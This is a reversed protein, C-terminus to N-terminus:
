EYDEQVFSALCDAQYILLSLPCKRWLECPFAKSSDYGSGGHHNLIACYEQQTLAIFSDVMYVSNAEHNGIMFRDASNRVSYGDVQIWDYKGQSDQKSGHDSYVKKNKVEHVYYNMKSFDHFLGVIKLTDPDYNFGFTECLKILNRSVKLSHDCLGGCFSGHHGQSAPAYFFDSEKLQRLLLDKRVAGRARTEDISEVLSLFEEKNKEIQEKSLM